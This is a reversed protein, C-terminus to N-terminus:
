TGQYCKYSLAPSGFVFGFGLRQLRSPTLIEIQLAATKAAKTNKKNKQASVSFFFFVLAAFIAASWISSLGRFRLQLALPDPQYSSRGSVRSLRMEQVVVVPAVGHRDLDLAGVALLCQGDVLA